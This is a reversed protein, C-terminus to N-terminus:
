AARREEAVPQAAEARREPTRRDGKRQRFAVPLQCGMAALLFTVLMVGNLVNMGEAGGRLVTPVNALAFGSFLLSATHWRRDGRPKLIYGYVYAAFGAVAGAISVTSLLDLLSIM